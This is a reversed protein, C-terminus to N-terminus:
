VGQRVIELYSSPLITGLNGSNSVIIEIYDNATLNYTEDISANQNPGLTSSTITNSNNKKLAVTYSGESGASGTDLTTKIRYYGTMKVTLKSPDSVTWYTAGTADANLNFSTSTWSIATPTSTMNVNASLIARAGSFSDAGTTGYGPTQGVLTVELYTGTLLTGTNNTESSFIEIYDGADLLVVEDYVATQNAAVSSSSINTSGNKKLIISYSSGTGNPGTYFNGNIRYYGNAPITVRSASTSTYYDGVDFSEVDWDVATSTSTLATNTTLTVKVGNFTKQATGLVVNWKVGDYRWLVSNPDTYTDNVSPTSPFNLSM